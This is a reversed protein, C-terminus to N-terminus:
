YRKRAPYLPSETHGVLKLTLSGNGAPRITRLAGELLVTGDRVPVRQSQLWGGLRDSAEYVTIRANPHDRLLFYASALGSIGAGLIAIDQGGENHTSYLQARVQNLSRPSYLARHCLRVAAVSTFGHCSHRLLMVANGTVRCISAPVRAANHSPALPM